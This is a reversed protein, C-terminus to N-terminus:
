RGFAPGMQSMSLTSLELKHRIIYHLSSVIDSQNLTNNNGADWIQGEASINNRLMYWM